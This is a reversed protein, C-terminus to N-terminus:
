WGLQWVDVRGAVIPTQATQDVAETAALRVRLQSHWQLWQQPRSRIFSQEEFM